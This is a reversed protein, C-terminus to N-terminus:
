SVTGCIVQLTSQRTLKWKRLQFKKMKEINWKMKKFNWKRCGERQIKDTTKLEMFSTRQADKVADNEKHGVNGDPTAVM